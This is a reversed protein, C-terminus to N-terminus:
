DIGRLEASPVFPLVARRLEEAEEPSFGSLGQAIVAGSDVFGQLFYHPAGEIWRGIDRMTGPTHYGKVLTTRFEYEVRGEMLLAVSECLADLPAAELGTTRAYAAPSNKIDMAVYDALGRDLIRRLAQPHSGNTDLKVAYGMKRIREMFDELGPQLLPEGGTLAVGELVGRRKELFSFFSAEDIDPLDAASLVLPSNHCFPCRFDCGGFFVTAALRGPYDLLTLKQLGKIHM